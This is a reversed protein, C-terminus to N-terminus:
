TTTPTPSTTTKRTSIPRKRATMSRSSTNTRSGSPTARPWRTSSRIPARTTSSAHRSRLEPRAARADARARDHSEPGANVGHGPDGDERSRRRLLRAHRESVITNLDDLLNTTKGILGLARAQGEFIEVEEKEEDSLDGEDTTIRAATSTKPSSSSPSRTTSACTGPTRSSADCSSRHPPGLAVPVVRRGRHDHARRRRRRPDARHGVASCSASPTRNVTRGVLQVLRPHDPDPM